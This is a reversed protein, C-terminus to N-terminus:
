LYELDAFQELMDEAECTTGNKPVKNHLEVANGVYFSEVLEMCRVLIFEFADNPTNRLILM